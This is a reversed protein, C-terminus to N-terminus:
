RNANELQKRLDEIQAAMQDKAARHAQDQEELQQIHATMEDRAARHAQDVKEMDKNKKELINIQRVAQRKEMKAKCFIFIHM